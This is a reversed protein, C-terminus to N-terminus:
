PDVQRLSMLGIRIKAAGVIRHAIRISGGVAAADVVTPNLQVVVRDFRPNDSSNGLHQLASTAAAVVVNSSNRQELYVFHQTTPTWNSAQAELEFRAVLRDGTTYGTTTSQFITNTGTSQDWDFWDGPLGDTRAVKTGTGTGGTQVVNAPITGTGTGGTGSMTPNPAIEEPDADSRIVTSADGPLIKDLADAIAKGIVYAGRSNPHTGDSNYETRWTVTAANALLSYADVVILGPRQRAQDMLWRNMIFLNEIETATNILDSPPITTTVVLSGVDILEDFISTLAAQQTATTVAGKVDNIGPTLLAVIDADYALVDDIRALFQETTEGTVGENGAPRLRQGLLGETWPAASNSQRTTGDTYEQFGGGYVYSDGFWVISTGPALTRSALNDMLSMSLRPNTSDVTVWRRTM